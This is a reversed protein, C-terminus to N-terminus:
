RSGQCVTKVELSLTPLILLLTLAVGARCCFGTINEVNGQISNHLHLSTGLTKPRNHSLIAGLQEMM